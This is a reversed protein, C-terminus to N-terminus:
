SIPALLFGEFISSNESNDIYPLTFYSLGTDPDPNMDFVTVGVYDGVSMQFTSSISISAKLLDDAGPSDTVQAWPSQQYVVNEIQNGDEDYHTLNIQWCMTYNAPATFTAAIVQSHFFYYGALPTSPSITVSDQNPFTNYALTNFCFNTIDLAESM